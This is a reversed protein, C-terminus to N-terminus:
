FLLKPHYEAPNGDKSCKHAGNREFYAILMESKAGLPGFYETHGGSQLLVLDDFFGFLVASPQHLTCLIM